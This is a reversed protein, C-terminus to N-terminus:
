LAQRPIRPSQRHPDQTVSAIGEIVRARTRYENYIPVAIFGPHRHDGAPDRSRFCFRLLPGPAFGRQTKRSFARVLTPRKDLPLREILETLGPLTTNAQSANGPAVSVGLM